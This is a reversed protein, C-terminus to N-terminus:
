GDRAKLQLWLVLLREFHLAANLAPVEHYMRKLDCLKGYFDFVLGDRSQREAFRAVIRQWRSVVDNLDEKAFADAKALLCSPDRWVEILHERMPTANEVCAELVSFPANGFEIMLEEINPATCEQDSLWQLVLDDSGRHVTFRQTRSRITPLLLESNTTTLILHKGPPPEELIKLLANSASQNMREADNVVALKIRGSQHTRSLFDVLSRIEEIRVIREESGIWHLDPDALESPDGSVDLLTRVVSKALQELGWGRPADILIGHPLRETRSLGNLDDEIRSLWIPLASM